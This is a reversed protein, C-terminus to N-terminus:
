EPPAFLDVTSDDQGAPTEAVPQRRSTARRPTPTPVPTAEPSVENETFCTASPKGGNPCGGRASDYAECTPKGDEGVSSCFLSPEQLPTGVQPPAPIPPANLAPTAQLTETSASAMGFVAYVGFAMGGLILVAVAGVIVGMGLARRSQTERLPAGIVPAPPPPQSTPGPPMSRTAPPDVADVTPASERPLAPSQGIFSPNERLAPLERASTMTHPMTEVLARAFAGANNFRDNPDMALAMAVAEVLTPPLVEIPSSLPIATERRTIKQLWEGPTVRGYPPEGAIMLYLTVAVSYLDARVDTRKTDVVQEPAMFYPTGLSAGTRTLRSDPTSQLMRGIGFDLIKALPEDSGPEDVLFINAPKIDRHIVGQAHALSLGDLVQVMIDVARAARMPGRKVVQSLSEGRLLELAVYAQKDSLSADLVRVIHPNGARVTVEAERRFREVLEEDGVLDTNLLKLAVEVNSRTDCAAFM